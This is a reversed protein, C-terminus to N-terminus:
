HTLSRASLTWAVGRVIPETALADYAHGMRPVLDLSREVNANAYLEYSAKVPIFRDSTGHIV